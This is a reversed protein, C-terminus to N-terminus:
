GYPYLVAMGVAILFVGLGAGIVPIIFWFARAMLVYSAGVIVFAVRVVVDSLIDPRILACYVVVLGYFILGLSHSFHFGLSSQWFDKADKRLAIRTARLEELLGPKAPTFYRPRKFDLLTLRLHLAGLIFFLLGGAATMLAPNM